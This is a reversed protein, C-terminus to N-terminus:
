RVKKKSLEYISNVRKMWGEGFITFNSLNQYYKKRELYLADLNFGHIRIWDKVKSPNHQVFSDFLFLRVNEPFMSINNKNWYENKYIQKAQDITLNKIDINPFTAASIGYKTGKLEGVDKKGSTWNGSDNPNDSYGGEKKLVIEFAEDFTM